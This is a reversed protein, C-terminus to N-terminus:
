LGNLVGLLRLSTMAPRQHAQGTLRQSIRALISRSNSASENWRRTEGYALGDSMGVSLWHEELGLLLPLDRHGEVFRYREAMVRPFGPSVPVVETKADSCRLPQPFTLRRSELASNPRGDECPRIALLGVRQPVPDRAGRRIRGPSCGDGVTTRPNAHARHAADSSRAGRPWDWFSEGWGKVFIARKGFGGCGTM